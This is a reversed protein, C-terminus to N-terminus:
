EDEKITTLLNKHLFIQLAVTLGVFYIAALIGLRDAPHWGNYSGGLVIGLVVCLMQELVFGFYISRNPTGMTRMLAIEKKRNRVVLFGMLFGAALSLLMILVSCIDNILKSNEMAAQASRLQSDDIKLAYPYYSYWSYDWPTKEGRINPQAFWNGARLRVEELQFNDAVIARISYIELTKDIASYINKMVKAPCYIGEGSHTGVIKLTRTHVNAPKNMNPQFSATLTLETAGETMMSKPVICINENESLCSESYGDLWDVANGSEPSFAMDANLVNIGVLEGYVPIGGIMMQRVNNCTIKIQLDKVLKTLNGRTTYANDFVDLVWRPAKLNSADTGTLNTVTLSVPTNRYIEAQALMEKQSAREMGCLIVAFVATTLMVALPLMPARLFRRSIYNWM